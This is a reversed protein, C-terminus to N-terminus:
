FNPQFILPLSHPTGYKEKLLERGAETGKLLDVQINLEKISTAKELKKKMHNNDSELKDKEQKLLALENSVSKNASRIFDLKKLADTLEEQKESM